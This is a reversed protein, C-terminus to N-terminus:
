NLKARFKEMLNAWETFLEGFEEDAKLIKTTTKQDPKEYPKKRKKSPESPLKEHFTKVMKQIEQASRLLSLMVEGRINIGIKTPRVMGDDMLLNSQIDIALEWEHPDDGGEKKTAVLSMVQKENDTIGSVTSSLLTIFKRTVGAYKKITATHEYKQVLDEFLWRQSVDYREPGVDALDYDHIYIKPKESEDVDTWVHLCEVIEVLSNFKMRLKSNSGVELSYVDTYSHKIDFADDGNQVSLVQTAM